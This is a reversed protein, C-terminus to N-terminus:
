KGIICLCVGKKQSQNGVEFSDSTGAPVIVYCNSNVRDRGPNLASCFKQIHRLMKKAHVCVTCVSHWMDCVMGHIDYITMM